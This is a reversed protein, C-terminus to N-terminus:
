HKIIKIEIRRIYEKEVSSVSTSVLAIEYFPGETGINNDKIYREMIKYYKPSDERKGKFYITLYEGKPKLSVNSLDKFDKNILYVGSYERYYSGQKMLLGVNGLTLSHSFETKEGLERVLLELECEKSFKKDVTFIKERDLHQVLVKGFEPINKVKEIYCLREEVSEKACELEKITRELEKKQELFITKLLSIDGNETYERIKEM